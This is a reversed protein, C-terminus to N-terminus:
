RTMPMVTGIKQWKQAMYFPVQASHVLGLTM